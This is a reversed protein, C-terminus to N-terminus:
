LTLTVRLFGDPTTGNTQPALHAIEDLLGAAAPSTLIHASLPRRAAFRWPKEDRWHPADLSHLASHLIHETSQHFHHLICDTGLRAFGGGGAVRFQNTALIFRQDPAVPTGQWRLAGIRAGRKQTPDITYTVGFVTEFMFSPYAPDTLATMQGDPHLQAFVCASQELWSHLDAGTIRLAVIHNNYPDLSALHRRLVPGKPISLFHDPGHRGGATHAAVSALVPVGADPTNRLHAQVLATKAGAMLACTLTPSALAFFNHLHHDTSGLVDNLHARLAHHSSQTARLIAPLAPTQAVNPLLTSVHGSVQWRGNPNQTLDLDLVGLDSGNHGAMLAPIGFLQGAATDIDHSHFHDKGPFRRHTHGSIIADVHFGQALHAATEPDPGADATIGLHALLIVLDAGQARLAPVAEKLVNQARNIHAQGELWHQNWVETQKPLISLIGVRLPSDHGPLDCTIVASQTIPALTDGILNSAVMPADLHRAIQQLYPLGFDLDHNGVGLANFGLANLSAIAPHDPGVPRQALYTGMPTGQFTDGNDLLICAAGQADAQARAQGILTGIGALGNHPTPTDRVYDFGHLHM